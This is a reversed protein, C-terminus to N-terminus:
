EMDLFAQRAVQVHYDFHSNGSESLRISQPAVYPSAFVAPVLTSTKISASAVTPFALSRIIATTEFKLGPVSNDPGRLATLVNWLRFKEVLDVEDSVLFSDIMDLVKRATKM